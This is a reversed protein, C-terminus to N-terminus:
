VMFLASAIGDAFLRGEASLRYGLPYVEIHRNNLKSIGTKLYDLYQKGFHTEVHAWTGGWVTRLSTFIYENYLTNKDLTETEYFNHGGLVNKIYLTTNAINWRRQTRTYSHAAAGLGLYKEGQWYSLNHKSFYGEKGFNSIEYHVFKEKDMMKTLIDYQEIAAGEEPAQAKNKKIFIELPTKEEVTLCYCSLHPLDLSFFTNINATWADKNLTPLGYILDITINDFGADQANKICNIAKAANHVRGLYNLDSDQFSQVGISLRNIGSNRLSKLKRPTLDEPNAEFSFESLHACNFNKHLSDIIRNLGDEDLISPTGGGFYLTEIKESTDFFSKKLYIEKILAEIYPEKNKLSTSFHFNCYVCANKCFPIHIYIGSM